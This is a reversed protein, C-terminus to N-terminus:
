VLAGGGGLVSFVQDARAREGISIARVGSTRTKRACPSRLAPAYALARVCLYLQARQAAAASSSSSVFAVRTRRAQRTFCSRSWVPTYISDTTSRNLTFSFGILDGRTNGRMLHIYYIIAHASLTTSTTTREITAHTHTHARTRTLSPHPLNPASVTFKHTPICRRVPGM